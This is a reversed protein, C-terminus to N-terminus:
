HVRWKKLKRQLTRVSIGLSQATRTRNGKREELARMVAMRELDALTRVRQPGGPGEIGRSINAPLDAASLSESTAASVMAKICDRLQEVNGPWDFTELFRALDPQM